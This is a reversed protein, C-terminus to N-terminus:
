AQPGATCCVLLSAWLTDDLMRLLWSKQSRNEAFFSLVLGRKCQCTSAASQVELFSCLEVQHTKKVNEHCKQCKPDTYPLITLLGKAVQSQERCAVQSSELSCTEGTCTGSSFHVWLPHVSALTWILRSVHHSKSPIHQIGLARAPNSGTVMQKWCQKLICGSSLSSPSPPNSHFIVTNSESRGM